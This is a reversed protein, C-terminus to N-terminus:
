FRFTYQFKAAVKTDAALFRLNGPAENVWGQNLSVFVDNGPKITWRMRGQWGLNRSRNDYQILNSFTLLPSVAFDLTSAILRATFNGEPLNAFTQSVETQWTVWPPMKYTIRAMVEEGSGSWFDGWTVRLSGSLSRKRATGISIKYRDTKYEGVPLTVDPSIEFPEFLREVGGFYDFFSHLGDGSNFHWDLWSFYFESSELEGTDLREFRTYYLDHLMQELNLFDKPRPNYDGGIRYMRTNNRQAFGVGPDFNEHIERYVLVGRWIENPYHATFGYSMDNGSVGDNKSRLGYANFIFNRHRGLFNSTAMSIDTGFTSSSQGPAPDGKTFIGGVYSQKLFNQKFRGVFINKGEVFSTGGTHVGLFGIEASGVKGTLKAGVDIPVERGDLLGIRRSFFPFVDLGTRPGGLSVEPGASVFNFVGVDELFFSRKEPFFLSFRTLNIQREDVETEGFDTNLTGTLKLSPTINYFIDVGPELDFDDEGTAKSYLWRSAIFPRVDLGIGQDLGQMNSIEGAESVQLIETELRASSWFAEELKRYIKRGINFGWVDQDAPFGLSKFPIAIEAAWGQDGRKTRVDWIADWDLNLENTGYVLGDVFAGAPTTAFYYANRQDRFTDLLIELSDESRLETDRAMSTGLIKDPESDYAMVGIYLNDADRVLTVETKESPPRGTDPQRQVLDGIKPATKWIMEDLESDITIKETTVTVAVSRVVSEAQSSSNQAAAFLPTHWLCLCFCATTIVVDGSRFSRLFETCFLAM